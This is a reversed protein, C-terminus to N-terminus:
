QLHLQLPAAPVSRRTYTGDASLFNISDSWDSELKNKEEDLNYATGRVYITGDPLNEPLQLQTNNPGVIEIVKTSNSSDPKPNKSFYMFYGIPRDAPMTRGNEYKTPREWLLKTIKLDAPDAFAVASVLFVGLVALKGFM